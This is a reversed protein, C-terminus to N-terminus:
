VGKIRNKQLMEERCVEREQTIKMNQQGEQTGCREKCAREQKVEVDMRKVRMETGLSWWAKM